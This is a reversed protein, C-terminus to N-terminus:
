ETAQDFPIITEAERLAEAVYHLDLGHFDVPIM